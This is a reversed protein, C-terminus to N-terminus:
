FPIGYITYYITVPSTFSLTTTMTLQSSTVNISWAEMYTSYVIQGGWYDSIYSNCFEVIPQFSLGVIPITRTKVGAPFVISGRSHVWIGRNRSDFMLNADDTTLVDYGPRSVFLGSVGNRNGLCVRNAM